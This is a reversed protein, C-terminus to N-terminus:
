IIGIDICISYLRELENYSGNEEIYDIVEVVTSQLDALFYDQVNSFGNEEWVSDFINFIKRATPLEKIDDLFDKCKDDSIKWININNQLCIDQFRGM